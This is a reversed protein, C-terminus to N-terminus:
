LSSPINANLNIVLTNRAANDSPNRSLAECAQNIRDLIKGRIRAAQYIKYEVQTIDKQLAELDRVDKKSGFRRFIDGLPM